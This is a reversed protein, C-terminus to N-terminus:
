RVNSEAAVPAPAASAPLLQGVFLLYLTGIALVAIVLNAFVFLGPALVAMPGVDGREIMRLPATALATAGFSFAWYSAAFPQKGIWPLMRLLILTLLLAYGILAHAFLDPTGTTIALYAVAGVAPPALQIGLTPRIPPPMPDAVFLRHILVSELALWSFAGAGFILQAWGPYGLTLAVTATVFSGAVTPLYLVATTHAVDRGGQWLTGTRWAAFGITYIAGLAFLVIGTSRSYPAMAGAALMTTVGALGVFCCQVPHRMEEIARTREFMWKAIYLLALILWIASGIWELSEGIASPLQWVRHAFRWANGLGIIGLVIGFFSAPVSLFKPHGSM